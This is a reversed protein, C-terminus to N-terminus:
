MGRDSTAASFSSSAVSLSAPSVYKVLTLHYCCSSREDRVVCCWEGREGMEGREGQLAVGAAVPSPSSPASGGPPPGQPADDVEAPLFSPAQLQLALQAAKLPEGARELGGLAGAGALFATLGDSGAHGAGGGAM